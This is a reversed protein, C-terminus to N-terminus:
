DLAAPLKMVFCAGEQQDDAYSLSGGHAAVISASISLGMGMGEAKTTQFPQFLRDRIEPDVGPGSDICRLVVGEDTALTRLLLRREAVPLADMADIANRVLNLCVQQIQIPDVMVQPLDDAFATKAEVQHSRLDFDAFELAAQVVANLDCAARASDRNSVFGRIRRVVDGARLAQGGISELTEGVLELDPAPQALLRRCAQAYASIATLPQNIEHAIASAMEGLTTVRGVHALREGAERSERESRVQESRDVVQGIIVDPEGAVSVAHLSVHVVMGDARVWRLDCRCEEHQGECVALYAERLRDRDAEFTLDSVALQGLQAPRYGVMACLAPNVRIFRGSMAASFIGIPAHDLLMSLERERAALATELARRASIDRLTGVFRRPELHDLEGVALELPFEEGSRRRGVVERGIGIIHAEGTALYHAIYGDHRAAEAQPMLCSVNRGVVEEARYGFIREAAPNFTEIVGHQDIIVIADVTAEIVAAYRASLDAYGDRERGRADSM